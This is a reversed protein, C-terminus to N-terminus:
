LNNAVVIDMVRDHQETPLKDFLQFDYCVGICEARFGERSIYRDYYGKGRGLRGGTRDFAVGPVIMVDIDSVLCAQEGQPELIGYAGEVMQSPMYDFFEMAADPGMDVVRPLVVRCRGSEALENCLEGIRVEDAMPAFLAVVSAQRQGLIQRLQEVVASSKSQKQEESIVKFREKVLRRFERKEM